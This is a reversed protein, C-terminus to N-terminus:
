IPRCSNALAPNAALELNLNRVMQSTSIKPVPVIKAFSRQTMRAFSKQAEGKCGYLSALTNLKEGQGRAMERSLDDHNAEAFYQVAKENLVIDQSKCNSTGSSIGFTQSGTVNTTAALLQMLKTNDSIIMSGLGCGADGDAMAAQCAIAALGAAFITRLSM